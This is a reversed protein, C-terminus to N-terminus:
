NEREYFNLETKRTLTQNELRENKCSFTGSLQCNYVKSDRVIAQECLISNQIESNGFVGVGGTLKSDSIYIIPGKVSCANSITSNKIFVEDGSIDVNDLITCNELNSNEFIRATGRVITDTVISNGFIRANNTVISNIVLASDFIMGTNYIWSDDNQSLNNYSEVWGGITGEPVLGQKTQIDKLAIIRFLKIVKGTKPHKYQQTQNDLILYKTPNEM